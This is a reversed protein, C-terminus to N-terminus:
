DQKNGTYNSAEEKEGSVFVGEGGRGGKRGNRGWELPSM